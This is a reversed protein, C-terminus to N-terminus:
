HKQLYNTGTKLPGILLPIIGSIMEKSGTGLKTFMILGVRITLGKCGTTSDLQEKTTAVLLDQHQVAQRTSASNKKKVTHRFFYM